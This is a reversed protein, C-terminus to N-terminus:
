DAWFRIAYVGKITALSVVQDVGGGDKVHLGAPTRREYIRPLLEGDRTEIVCAQNRRPWATKDYGAFRAPVAGEPFAGDALRLFGANPSFLWGLDESSAPPVDVYHIEGDERPEPLTQVAVVTKFVGAGNSERAAPARGPFSLHTVNNQEATLDEMSAGLADLISRQVDSRLVVARGSEYRSITQRSVSLKEALQEQSVGARERIAQLAAGVSEAETSNTSATASNAMQRHLVLSQPAAMGLM